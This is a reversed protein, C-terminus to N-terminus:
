LMTCSKSRADKQPTYPRTVKRSQSSQPRPPAGPAQRTEAPADQVVAPQPDPNSPTVPKPNTPTPPKPNTPAVPKPNSPTTPKPNTPTPPKPKTPTPPKQNTPTQPKTPKNEREKDSTSKDDDNSAYLKIKKLLEDFTAGSWSQQVSEDKFDIYLLQTFVMSMPGSPPWTTDELLLPIIPKKLADALSVERRCNASKSYKETVCSLVVKCGRVGRDIKDYLSDGGGMQHIDMWCHYGLGSMRKYLAKIQPQIGWQYSIFVEPQEDLDQM